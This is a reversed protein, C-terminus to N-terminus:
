RASEREAERREVEAVRASWNCVPRIMAPQWKQMADLAAVIREVDERTRLTIQAGDDLEVVIAVVKM